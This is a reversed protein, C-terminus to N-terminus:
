NGQSAVFDEMVAKRLLNPPLWDKRFFLITSSKSTSNPGWRRKRLLASKACGRTGTSIRFRRAPAIPLHLTGSRGDRVRRIFGCREPPRAHGAGSHNKGQQLEPDLFARAARLLRLQLSILKGDDPM